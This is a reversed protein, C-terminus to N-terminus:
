KLKPIKKQRKTWFKPGFIKWIDHLSSTSITLTLPPTKQKIETKRNKHKSNETKKETEDDAQFIESGQARSGWLFIRSVV